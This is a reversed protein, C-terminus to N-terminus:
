GLQMSKPTISPHNHFEEVIYKISRIHEMMFHQQIAIDKLTGSKFQRKELADILSIVSDYKKTKFLNIVGGEVAEEQNYPDNIKDILKSSTSM